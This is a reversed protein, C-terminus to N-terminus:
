NNSGMAQGFEIDEAKGVWIRDDDDIRFLCVYRAYDFLSEIGIPILIKIHIHNKNESGRQGQKQNEIVLM